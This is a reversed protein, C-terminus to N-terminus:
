GRFVAKGQAPWGRASSPSHAGGAGSGGDAGSGSGRCRAPQLPNRIHGRHQERHPCQNRAASGKEMWGAQVPHRRPLKLPADARQHQGHAEGEGLFVKLFTSCVRNGDQHPAPLPPLHRPVEAAATVLLGEGEGHEGHQAQGPTCSPKMQWYEMRGISATTIELRICRGGAKAVPRMRSPQQGPQRRAAGARKCSHCMCVDAAAQARQAALGAHVWAQGRGAPPCALLTAVYTACPSTASDTSIVAALVTAAATM